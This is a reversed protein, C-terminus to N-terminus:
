TKGAADFVSTALRFVAFGPIFPVFFAMYNAGLAIVTANDIFVQYIPARLLYVIISEVVAIGIFALFLQKVIAWARDLQNAGLNQGVMTALASSGSFIIMNVISSVRNGIGYASLLLGKGGLVGDEIAVLSTLVTFGLATTSQGLASPVGIKLIRKILPLDPRLHHSTVKIGVRGSVLLYLGIIGAAGRTLVTTLAAGEAGLAPLGLWGFVFFPDLVMDSVASVVSLIMPTRTDGYGRLLSQFGFHMLMFPLGLFTIRMYNATVTFVSDPINMLQLVSDVFVFGMGALVTSTTLLILVLQGAVRNSQVRDGAGTYQAVLTTGGMGLGASLSIFLFIIPWSISPAAIAEPGVRGLWLADTLNYVTQFVSSLMMPWALRLATPTIGSGLIQERM